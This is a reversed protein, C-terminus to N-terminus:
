KRWQGWRGKTMASAWFVPLVFQLFSLYLYNLWYLFCKEFFIISVPQQLVEFFTLLLRKRNNSCFLLVIILWSLLFDYSIKCTKLTLQGKEWVTPKLFLPNSINKLFNFFNPITKIPVIFAIGKLLKQFIPHPSSLRKEFLHRERLIM